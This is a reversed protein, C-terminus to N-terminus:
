VEPPVQLASASQVGTALQPLIGLERYRPRIVRRLEPLRRAFWIAGGICCVGGCFLTAPAGMSAAALGACLSGIPTVGLVALTYFAMVRGRKDDAVITQLITNSAALQQMMGFGTVVMLALSLWLIRSTSLLMLGGGFLGASLAIMRGLGLVSKRLVLTVASILAGVGSAGMLFGLTHAGGHLVQGAVIPMLVTYPMAILSLLALLTLISRIVPSEIIYRWGEALEQHVRKETRPARVKPLRMALLSIVVAIYSIGDILFCYGEGMAAIVLGAIAPGVLRAGNVMSSNLAIANGLDARREIMEIVFAQRAPMDFANILGQFLVMLIIWWINIAGSLALAALAFSQVMSLIQTVVLTRHRDWRDIWVGAIPALFFAPIQGAFGSVGLLLASDTLRYVLWSTAIRTMWTGILSISQGTFFLRYNRSRLARLATWNASPNM